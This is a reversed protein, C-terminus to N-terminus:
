AGQQGRRAGHLRQGHRSHSSSSSPPPEELGVPGFLGHLLRDLNAASAAKTAQLKATSIEHSSTWQSQQQTRRAPLSHRRPSTGHSHVCGFHPLYQKSRLKSQKNYQKWAITHYHQKHSKQLRVTRNLTYWHINENSPHRLVSRYTRTSM